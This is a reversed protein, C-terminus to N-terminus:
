ARDEGGCTVVADVQATSGSEGASGQAFYVGTSRCARLISEALRDSDGGKVPRREDAAIAPADVERPRQGAGLPRLDAGQRGAERLPETTRDGFAGQHLELAGALILLELDFRMGPSRRGKLRPWRPGTSEEGEGVISLDRVHHLPADIDLELLFLYL